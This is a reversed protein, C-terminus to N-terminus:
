AANGGTVHLEEGPGGSTIHLEADPGLWERLLVLLQDRLREARWAWLGYRFRLFLKNDVVAPTAMDPQLLFRNSWELREVLRDWGAICEDAPM